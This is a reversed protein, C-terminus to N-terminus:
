FVLTLVPGTLGGDSLVLYDAGATAPKGQYIVKWTVEAAYSPTTIQNTLGAPLLPTLPPPFTLTLTVPQGAGLQAVVGKKSPSLVSSNFLALKLLDCAKDSESTSM